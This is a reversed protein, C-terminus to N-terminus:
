ESDQPEKWLVEEKRKEKFIFNDDIETKFDEGEIYYMDEEDPLYHPKLTFIYSSLFLTIIISYLLIKSLKNLINSKNDNYYNLVISFRQKLKTEDDKYLSSMKLNHEIVPVPTTKNNINQIVNIISGLYQNRDEVNMSSTTRLDCQIELM